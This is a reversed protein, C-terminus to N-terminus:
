IYQNRSTSIRLNLLVVITLENKTDRCGKKEIHHLLQVLTEEAFERQGIFYKKHEKNM